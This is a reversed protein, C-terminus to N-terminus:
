VKNGKEYFCGYEIQGFYKHTYPCANLFGTSRHMERVMSNFTEVTMEQSDSSHHVGQYHVGLCFLMSLKKSKPVESM